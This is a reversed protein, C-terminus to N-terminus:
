VTANDKDEHASITDWLHDLERPVVVNDLRSDPIHADGRGLCERAVSQFEEMSM